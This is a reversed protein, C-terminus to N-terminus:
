FLQDEKWSKKFGLMKKEDKEVVKQLSDNVLQIKKKADEVIKDVETSLEVITADKAKIIKNANMHKGVVKNQLQAIEKLM